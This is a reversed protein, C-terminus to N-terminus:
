RMPAVHGRRALYYLVGLAVLGLFTLAVLPESWILAVACLASLLLALGPLVPYLPVRFPRALTPEARRLRFLAAMSFLYLALAGFCALTIIQATRGSFIALLGVGMNALLAARPTGSTAHVSGLLPPAYGARGLELTARAAALLIGHFSAVLGLLGMGLLLTYWSSDRGVVYGLALPLPADSAQDSGPAFVVARWGAVGTAAFFVMLVLVVLTGMAAGFGFSVDRQPHRAEEAANAVGEIALYFWIAFPLCAFMGSWGHPLAERAFAEASFHPLTL